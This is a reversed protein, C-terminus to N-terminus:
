VYRKNSDDTINIIRKKLYAFAFAFVMDFLKM